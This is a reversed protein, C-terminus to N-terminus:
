FDIPHMHYSKYVHYTLYALLLDSLFIVKFITYSKDLKIIFHEYLYCLKKTKSNNYM